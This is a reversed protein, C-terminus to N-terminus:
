YWWPARRRWRGLLGWAGLMGGLHAFHAIGSRTNLVGSTLEIGAFLIVMLWAPMPVPPFLLMVIRNPYLMGFALLVGFVGGSAGVTPYPREGVAGSVVALQVLAACLVAAFYLRLYRRSGLAREVETGFLYLGFMNLALHLLNGHLFASTVLQWPRFGVVAGLEPDLYSGLPWLAFTVLAAEGALAAWAYAVLNAVILLTNVRM